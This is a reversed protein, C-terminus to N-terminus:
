ADSDVVPLAEALFEYSQGSAVLCTVGGPTTITITWSGTDASAFTEMVVGRQGIGISQRSEGYREALRKVVQDRPACNNSTQAVAPLAMLALAALAASKLVALEFTKKLM